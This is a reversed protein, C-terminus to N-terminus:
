EGDGADGDGSPAAAGARRTKGERYEKIGITRLESDRGTPNTVLHITEVSGEIVGIKQLPTVLVLQLGLSEFLRLGYRTSEESGRGYAEDIVV